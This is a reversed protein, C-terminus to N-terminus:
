ENGFLDGVRIGAGNLFDRVLARAKGALQLEFVRLLTNGGCFISLDDGAASLVEGPVGTAETEEAKAKWFTVREGNVFSYSRPFPQFGRIRNSIGTSQMHWDILGDEKAFLPAHTAAENDQEVPVITDIELLTQSLAEAGIASLREMLGVANEDERIRVEITKLIDGTDLGADMQMTTVGTVTEGCAIAWNVPAAGRYKPLLSFHVNICGYRFAELYTKTLIRGYAVVIAADAELGAFRARSARSKIREPQFVEIGREVAFEKVPSATLRRGRGSPRDPQTWVELVDHGDDLLRRLSPVAAAPTGM